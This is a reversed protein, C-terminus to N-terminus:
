LDELFVKSMRGLIEKKYPWDRGCYQCVWKKEGNVETAVKHHAKGPNDKGFCMWDVSANYRKDDAKINRAVLRYKNGKCDKRVLQGM